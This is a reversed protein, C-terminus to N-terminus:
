RDLISFVSLFALYGLGVGLSISVVQLLAGIILQKPMGPVRVPGAAPSRSLDAADYPRSRHGQHPEADALKQPARLTMIVTLIASITM